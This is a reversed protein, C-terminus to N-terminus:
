KNFANTDSLFKLLAPNFIDAREIQPVHGCKDIVFLQSGQIEKKYREGHELPILEDERGWVILTPQKVASLRNDLVDEGRAFSALLRQITDSDGTMIKKAYFREVAADSIFKKDDYFLLSFLRRTEASSGADVVNYDMREFLSKFGSADVLVLRNVKEPYTAAFTAAIWGGLSNGVLDAREIKLEKYLQNLFDVFTTVRYNLSPKGSLGFGVQDPVIVRYKAAILTITQAWNTADGGMGHLLIVTQQGSGAELYHIKAGYVTVFKSEPAGASVTASKDRAVVSFSFVLLFILATFRSIVTIKKENASNKVLKELIFIIPM